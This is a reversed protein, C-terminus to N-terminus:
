KLYFNSMKEEGITSSAGHGPYVIVSDELKMLKEKISKILSDYDGGYFDTRGISGQFLTDGSFLFNSILFCMGGPTHGPTEICKIKIDNFNIIDNDKPLIDAEIYENNISYPGFLDKKNKILEQDVKSIVLKPNYIRKIELVGGTHDFHGHTLLMYKININLKDIYEFFGSSKKGPDIIIADRNNEDIIIYCNTQYEGLPVSIIKM